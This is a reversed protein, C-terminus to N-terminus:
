ESSVEFSFINTNGINAIDQDEDVVPVKSVLSTGFPHNMRGVILATYIKDCLLDCNHYLVM